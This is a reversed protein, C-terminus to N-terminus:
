VVPDTIVLQKGRYMINGDHLDIRRVEKKLEKLVKMAERYEPSNDFPVKSVGEADLEVRDSTKRGKKTNEVSRLKEMTVVTAYGYPNNWSEVGEYRAVHYIKPFYPNHQYALAYELFRDYGMDNRAVKVVVNDKAWADSFLGRGIERYGEAYLKASYAELTGQPKIREPLKKKKM